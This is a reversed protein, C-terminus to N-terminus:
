PAGRRQGAEGVLVSLHPNAGTRLITRAGSTKLLFYLRLFIFRDIKKKAITTENILKTDVISMRPIRVDASNEAPGAGSGAGRLVGL